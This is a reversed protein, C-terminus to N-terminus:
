GGRSLNDALIPREIAFSRGPTHGSRVYFVVLKQMDSIKTLGFRVIRKVVIQKVLVGFGWLHFVALRLHLPARILQRFLLLWCCGLLVFLVHEVKKDGREDAPGCKAARLHALSHTESFFPTESVAADSHHAV